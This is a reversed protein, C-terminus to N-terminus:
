CTENNTEGSEFDKNAVPFTIEFTTGENLKSKVGINGNHSKIIWNAISLGLGNGPIEKNRSKDGRFFRDFM